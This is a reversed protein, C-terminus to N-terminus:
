GAFLRGLAEADGFNLEASQARDIMDFQELRKM